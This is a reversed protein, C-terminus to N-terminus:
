RLWEITYSLGVWDLGTRAFLYVGFVFLTVALVDRGV